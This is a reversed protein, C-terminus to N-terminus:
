FEPKEPSPVPVGARKGFVLPLISGSVMVPGFDWFCQLEELSAFSGAHRQQSKLRAGSRSCSLRCGLLRLSKSRTGNQLLDPTLYGTFECRPSRKRGRWIRLVQSSAVGTSFGFHAARQVPVATSGALRSGPQLPSAELSLTRALRRRWASASACRKPMQIQRAM